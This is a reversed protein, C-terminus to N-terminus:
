QPMSAKAPQVYYLLISRGVREVPERTMLWYWARRRAGPPPQQDPMMLATASVAVWGEVPK